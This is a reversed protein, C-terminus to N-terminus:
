EKKEKEPAEKIEKPTEEKVEEVIKEKVIKKEKSEKPAKTRKKVELIRIECTSLPYIKKLKASLTKQMNNNLVETFINLITGVKAYSLLEEKAKNRLAKRVARSVKRRTVLFPKIRVVGDTTEADFSDEVYNTGKRVMRKLYSPLLYIKVPHAVAIKDKIEVVADLLINKGRQM